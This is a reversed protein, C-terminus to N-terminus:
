LCPHLWIAPFQTVVFKDRSASGVKDEGSCIGGLNRNRSGGAGADNTGGEGNVRRAGRM